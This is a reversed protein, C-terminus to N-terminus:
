MEFWEVTFSYVWTHTAPFAVRSRLAIGGFTNLVLPYPFVVEWYLQRGTTSIFNPPRTWCVEAGFVANTMTIAANSAQSQMGSRDCEENKKDPIPIASPYLGLYSFRQWGLAGPVLGSTGVTAGAFQMSIKKIYAKEMMGLFYLYALTSDIALSGAVVATPGGYLTYHGGKGCNPLNEVTQVQKSANVDLVNNASGVIKVTM